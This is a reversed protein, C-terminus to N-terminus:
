PGGGGQLRGGLITSMSIEMQKSEKLLVKSVLSKICWWSALQWMRAATVQFTKKSEKRGDNWYFENHGNGPYFFHPDQQPHIRLTSVAPTIVPVLMPVPPPHSTSRCIYTPLVALSTSIYTSTSPRINESLAANFKQVASCLSQWVRQSPSSHRDASSCPMM